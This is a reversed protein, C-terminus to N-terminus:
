LPFKFVIMTRMVTTRSRTMSDVPHSPEGEWDEDSNNGLDSVDLVTSDMRTSAAVCWRRSCLRGYVLSLLARMSSSECERATASTGCKLTGDSGSLVKSEDHQVCRRTVAGNDTALTHRLEGTDADWVRHM